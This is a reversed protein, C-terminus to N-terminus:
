TTNITTICCSHTFTNLHKSILKEVTNRTGGNLDYDFIGRDQAHFTTIERYIQQLISTESITITASDTSSTHCGVPQPRGEQQNHCQMITTAKAHELCDNFSPLESGAFM